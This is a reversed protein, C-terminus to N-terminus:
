FLKVGSIDPSDFGGDISAEQKLTQCTSDNNGSAVEPLGLGTVEEVPRAEAAPPIVSSGTDRKVAEISVTEANPQDRKVGEGMRAMADKKATTGDGTAQSLRGTPKNHATAAAVIPSKSSSAIPSPSQRVRPKWTTKQGKAKGRPRPLSINDSRPVPITPGNLRRALSKRSSVALNLDKALDAQARQVLQSQSQQLVFATNTASFRRILNPVTNVRTRSIM